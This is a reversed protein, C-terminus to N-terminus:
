QQQHQCQQHGPCYSRKCKRSIAITIPLAPPLFRFSTALLAMFLTCRHLLKGASSVRGIAIKMANHVYACCFVERDYPPSFLYDVMLLADAASGVRVPYEVGDVTVTKKPTSSKRRVLESLIEDYEKKKSDLDSQQVDVDQANTVEITLACVRGRGNDGGQSGASGLASISVFEEASAAGAVQLTSPVEGISVDRKDGGQTGRIKLENVRLRNCALPSIVHQLEIYKSEIMEESLNSSGLATDRLTSIHSRVETQHEATFSCELPSMAEMIRHLSSFKAGSESDTECSASPHIRSLDHIPDNDRLPSGGNSQISPSRNAELDDISSQRELVQRGSKGRPPVCDNNIAIERAIKGGKGQPSMKRTSLDLRSTKRGMALRLLIKESSSSSLFLNLVSIHDTTRNFDSNYLSSSFAAQYASDLLVATPQTLLVYLLINYIVYTGAANTPKRREKSSPTV